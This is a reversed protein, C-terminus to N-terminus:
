RQSTRIQVAKTKQGMAKEVVGFVAGIICELAGVEDSLKKPQSFPVSRDSHYTPMITFSFSFKSYVVCTILPNRGQLTVHITKCIPPSRIFKCYYKRECLANGTGIGTVLPFELLFFITRHGSFSVCVQCHDETLPQNSRIIQHLDTDMLEYVIYVDNFEERKPPRIIDRIAIVQVFAVWDVGAAALVGFGIYCLIFAAGASMECVVLLFRFSSGEFFSSHKKIFTSLVYTKM